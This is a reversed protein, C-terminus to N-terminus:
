NDARHKKLIRELQARFRKLHDVDEQTLSQRELLDPRKLLTRVLSAQRRWTAIEGHNGSLLVDPVSVGAVTAPRTYQPFELLGDAFSEEQASLANGLAGPIMRTVADIVVMAGLEGGTLVFDGISLELDVHRQCFREDLGEYRGCILIVEPCAALVRAVGQDFLRGQPTLLVTHAQPHTNKAKRLAEVLPTAKMVMGCGGGYPRDDVTRHKDETFERIDTTEISVLGNEISRKVIGGALLASLMEPFITLVNFRM